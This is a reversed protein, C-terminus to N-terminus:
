PMVDFADLIVWTDSSAPNRTGTVEITLTHAGRPFGTATFVVAPELSAGYTDVDGVFTGDV